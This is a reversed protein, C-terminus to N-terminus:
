MRIQFIRYFCLEWFHNSPVPNKTVILEESVKNDLQKGKQKNTLISSRSIIDVLGSLKRRITALAGSEEGVKEIKKSLNKCINKLSKASGCLLIFEMPKKKDSGKSPCIEDSLQILINEIFDALMGSAKHLNERQNTEDEGGFASANANVSYEEDNGVVLTKKVFIKQGINKPFSWFRM